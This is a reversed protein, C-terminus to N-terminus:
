FLYFFPVSFDASSQKKNILQTSPPPTKNLKKLYVGLPGLSNSTILKVNLSDKIDIKDQSYNSKEFLIEVLIM